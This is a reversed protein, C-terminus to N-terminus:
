CCDQAQPWRQLSCTSRAMLSCAALLVVVTTADTPRLCSLRIMQVRLRLTHFSMRVRRLVFACLLGPPAPSRTSCCLDVFTLDFSADGLLELLGLGSASSAAMACGLNDFGATTSAAASGDRRRIDVRSFCSSSSCRLDRATDLKFPFLVGASVERRTTDAEEEDTVRGVAAENRRLSPTCPLLTLRGSDFAVLVRSAAAGIVVAPLAGARATKDDLEARAREQHISACLSPTYQIILELSNVNRLVIRANRSRLTTFSPMPWRLSSRTRCFFFPIQSTILSQNTPHTSPLQRVVFALHVPDHELYYQVHEQSPFTSIFIHHFGKGANEPSTNHTSSKFDLIYPQGDSYLCATRFTNFDDYLGRRQEPSVSDKYKFSVVHVVPM